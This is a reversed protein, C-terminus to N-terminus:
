PTISRRNRFPSGSEMTSRRTTQQLDQERLTILRSIIQYGNRADRLMEAIIESKLEYYLYTCDSEVYRPDTEVFDKGRENTISARIGRRIRDAVTKQATADSHSGNVFRTWAQHKVMLAALDDNTLVDLNTPLEGFYDTPRDVNPDDPIRLGQAALDTRIDAGVRAYMDRLHEPPVSMSQSISM